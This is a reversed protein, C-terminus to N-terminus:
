DFVLPMGLTRPDIAGPRIVAYGNRSAMAFDDTALVDAPIRALLLDRVHETDPAPVYRHVSNCFGTDPDYIALSLRNVPEVEGAHSFLTEHHAYATETLWLCM